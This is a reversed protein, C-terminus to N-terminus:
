MKYESYSRIDTHKGNSCSSCSIRKNSWLLKVETLLNMNKKQRSLAVSGVLIQAVLIAKINKQKRSSHRNVMWGALDALGMLTSPKARKLLEDGLNEPLTPHQELLQGFLLSSARIPTVHLGWRDANFTMLTAALYWTSNFAFGSSQFHCLLSHSVQCPLIHNIRCQSCLCVEYIGTM